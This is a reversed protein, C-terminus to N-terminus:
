VKRILGLYHTRLLPITSLVPYLIQTWRGLRRALQPLVTVEHLELRYRPFLNQIAKKNMGRVHPNQPNNFRFDYWVVAGEPKLVRMIETAMNHAMNSCLISSFVTFLFVLDFNHDRFPLYVANAVLFPMGSFRKKAERVSDERL